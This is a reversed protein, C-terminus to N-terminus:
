SVCLRNIAKVFQLIHLGVKFCYRYRYDPVNIRTFNKKQNWLRLASTRVPQSRQQLWAAAVVATQHQSCTWATHGADVLIDLSSQWSIIEQTWSSDQWCRKSLLLVFLCLAQLFLLSLWNSLRNFHALQSCDSVPGNVELWLCNDATLSLDTWNRDATLSLDTWSWKEGIQSRCDVVRMMLWCIKSEGHRTTSKIHCTARLYSDLKVIMRM